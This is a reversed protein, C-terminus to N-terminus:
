ILAIILTSYGAIKDGMRGIFWVRATFRLIKKKSALTEAHLWNQVRRDYSPQPEAKEPRQFFFKQPM